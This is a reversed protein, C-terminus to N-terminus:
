RVASLFALIFIASTGIVLVVDGLSSTYSSELTPEDSNMEHTRMTTKKENPTRHASKLRRGGELDTAHAM